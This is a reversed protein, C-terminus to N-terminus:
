VRAEPGLAATARARKSNVKRRERSKETFETAGRHGRHHLRQREKRRKEAFEAAGRHGGTTFGKGKIGERRQSSQPEETDVSGGQVEL